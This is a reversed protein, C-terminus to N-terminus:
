NILAKIIEVIKYFKVQNVNASAYEVSNEVIAGFSSNILRVEENYANVYDALLTKAEEVGEYTPEAKDKANNAIAIYERREALTLTKDALAKVSDVLTKSNGELASLTSDATALTLNAEHVGPIGIVDGAAKLAYAAAVAAKKETFSSKGAIANVAAIYDAAAKEMAALEEKVSAISAIAEPVGPYQMEVVYEDLNQDLYLEAVALEAKITAYYTSIKASNVAKIFSECELVINNLVSEISVYSSIDETLGSVTIVDVDGHITGGNYVTKAVLYANYRDIFVSEANKMIAVSSQFTTVNYVIENRKAELEAFKDLREYVGPYSANRGKLQSIFDYQSVIYSYTRNEPDYRDIASIYEQSDLRLEDLLRLENQYTLVEASYKNLQEVTLNEMCEEILAIRALRRSYSRTVDIESVHYLFANENTKLIYQKAAEYLATIEEVTKGEIAAPSYATSSTIVKFVNAIRIQTDIDLEGSALASLNVLAEGTATALSKGGRLYTGGYIEVNDMYMKAGENEPLDVFRMSIENFYEADGLSLAPSTYSKDESAVSFSYTGKKCNLVFSISYAKGCELEFNSIPINSFVASDSSSVKAYSMKGSEFDLNLPLVYGNDGVPAGEADFAYLAIGFAPAALTGEPKEAKVTATIVMRTEKGDSVVTYGFPFSNNGDNASIYQLFADTGAVGVTAGGTTFEVRYGDGSVFYSYPSDAVLGNFNDSIYVPEQYYELIDEINDKTFEASSAFAFCSVLMAVVALVMLIRKTFKM